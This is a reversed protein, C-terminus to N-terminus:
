TLQTFITLETMKKGVPISAISSNKRNTTKTGFTNSDFTPQNMSINEREFDQIEIM